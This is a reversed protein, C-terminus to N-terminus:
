SYHAVSIVYSHAFFVMWRSDSTKTIKVAQSIRNLPHRIGSAVSEGNRLHGQTCCELCDRSGSCRTQLLIQGAIRRHHMKVGFSDRDYEM